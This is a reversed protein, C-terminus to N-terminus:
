DCAMTHLQIGLVLTVTAPINHIQLRESSDLDGGECFSCIFKPEQVEWRNATDSKTNSPHLVWVVLPSPLKMEMWLAMSKLGNTMAQETTEMGIILYLMGFACPLPQKDWPLGFSCASLFTVPSYMVGWLCHGEVLSRQQSKVKEWHHWWNADM